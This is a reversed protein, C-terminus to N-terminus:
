WDRRYWNSFIISFISTCDRGSLAIPLALRQIVTPTTFKLSELKKLIKSSVDDSLDSFNTIYDPVNDGEIMIQNETLFSDTSVPTSDSPKSSKSKKNSEADSDNKRKKDDTTM